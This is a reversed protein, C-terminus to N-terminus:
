PSCKIPIYASSLTFVHSYLTRRKIARCLFSCLDPPRGWVHGCMLVCSDGKQWMMLAAPRREAEERDQTSRPVQCRNGRVLIVEAPGSFGKLGSARIQLSVSGARLGKLVFGPLGSGFSEGGLREAPSESLCPCRTGTTKLVGKRAASSRRRTRPGLWPAPLSASATEKTSPRCFGARSIGRPEALTWPKRMEPPQAPLLPRRKRECPDCCSREQRSVTSSVLCAHPFPRTSEPCRPSDWGSPLGCVLWKM